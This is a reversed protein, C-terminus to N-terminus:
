GFFFSVVMMVFAMAVLVLLVFAAIHSYLSERRKEQYGVIWATALGGIFGGMHGWNDIGPVLFGLVFGIGAWIMMTRMIGSGFTGGRSRGYFILAGFLGFIAGSAGVFFATGLVTTLIAGSIGAIM